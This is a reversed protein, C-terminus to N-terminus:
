KEGEWGSLPPIQLLLGAPMHLPDEVGNFAALLRWFAPDGYYQSAIQDLRGGPGGQEEVTSEGGVVAHVHVQDPPLGEGPPLGAGPPLIDLPSPLSPAAPTQAASEQARLLRMRLWSRRPVGAATFYELREAVATVIGPINWSKGWIFRVLPPRRSGDEGVANEALEWFRMTLERVDETTVSSGAVSVDFLLDLHLETSGGGTYLLSDDLLTAGTLAGGISRRPYVGALRRVTLSAPNLLCGLREGSHELLFAVREM